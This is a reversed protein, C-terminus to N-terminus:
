EVKIFRLQIGEFQSKFSKDVNRSNRVIELIYKLFIDKRKESINMGFTEIGELRVREIRPSFDRTKWIVVPGM